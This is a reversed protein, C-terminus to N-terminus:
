RHALFHYDVGYCAVATAGFLMIGRVLWPNELWQAVRLDHRSATSFLLGLWMCYVLVVDSNWSSYSFSFLVLGGTLLALVAPAHATSVTAKYIYHVLLALVSGIFILGLLGHDMLFQFPLNHTHGGPFFPWDGVEGRPITRYLTSSFGYGLLLEKRILGATYDFMELRVTVAHVAPLYKEIFPKVPTLFLWLVPVLVTSMAAAMYLFYKRRLWALHFLAFVAMSIVAALQSSESTSMFIAALSLAGVLVAAATCPSSRGWLLGISGWMLLLQWFALNKDHWKSLDTDLPTLFALNRQVAFGNCQLIYLGSLLLCTAALGWRLVIRDTESLNLLALVIISSFLLRFQAAVLWSVNAHNSPPFLVSALTLALYSWFLAILAPRYGPLRVMSLRPLALFLLVLFVLDGYKDQLQANLFVYATFVFFIALCLVAAVIKQIAGDNEM